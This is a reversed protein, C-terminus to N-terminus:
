KPYSVGWLLVQYWLHRGWQLSRTGFITLNAHPWVWQTPWIWRTHSKQVWVNITSDMVVMPVLKSCGSHVCWIKINNNINIPVHLPLPGHWLISILFHDGFWWSPLLPPIFHVLFCELLIRAVRKPLWWWYVCVQWFMVKGCSWQRATVDSPVTFCSHVISGHVLKSCPDFNGSTLNVAHSKKTSLCQNPPPACWNVADAACIPFGRLSGQTLVQKCMVDRTVTVTLNVNVYVTPESGLRDTLLDTVM